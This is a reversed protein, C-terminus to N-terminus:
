PQHAIFSMFRVEGGTRDSSIVMLGVDGHTYLNDEVEAILVDNVVFRLQNSICEAQIRNSNDGQLISEVPLMTAHSLLYKDGQVMSGISAYGDDSILFFYFHDPDQYRCIVGYTTGQVGGSKVAEVEIRIDALDVGPTSWAEINPERLQFVFSNSLYDMTLVDSDSTTWGSAHSSFDDQFLPQGPLIPPAPFNCAALVAGAFLILILLHFRKKATTHM